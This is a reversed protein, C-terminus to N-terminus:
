LKKVDLGGIIKNNITPKIKFQNIIKDYCKECIDSHHEEGDKRSSYGWAADLMAFERGTETDKIEEGCVNCIIKDIVKTKYMVAKTKIM